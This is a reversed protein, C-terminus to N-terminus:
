GVLDTEANVIAWLALYQERPLTERAAKIFQREQRREREASEAAYAEARLTKLRAMELHALAGPSLVKPPAETPERQYAADIDAIRRRCEEDAARANEKDRRMERIAVKAVISKVGVSRNCLACALCLNDLDDSGGSSVALLHEITRTEPTTTTGCYWCAPGDRAILRETTENIWALKTRLSPEGIPCPAPHQPLYLRAAKESVGYRRQRM